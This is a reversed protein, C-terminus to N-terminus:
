ENGSNPKSILREMEDETFLTPYNNEFVSIMKRIVTERLFKSRNKVGFDGCFRDVTKMEYENLVITIRHKRKM